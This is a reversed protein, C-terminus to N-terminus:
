RQRAIQLVHEHVAVLALEPVLASEISECGVRWGDFGSCIGVGVGIGIGAGGCTAKIFVLPFINEAEEVFPARGRCCCSIIIRRYPTQM